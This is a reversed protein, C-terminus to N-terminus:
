YKVKMLYLGQGSVKYSTIHRDKADIRATIYSLPIKGSAYALSTGVMMRIQGNMFGNGVFDLVVKQNAVAVNISFIERVFLDEDEKKSTFSQFCHKGVFLSLAENLKDADLLFPYFLVFDEKFPDKGCLSIVFRYHKEKANFRAHFDNKVRKIKSLQIDGPLMKNMSYLFKTQDLKDADFHFVQGYAHVGADTRGSGHIIVEKNFYTSFVQEIEGQVTREHPQKQWGKFYTGKYAVTVLYRM